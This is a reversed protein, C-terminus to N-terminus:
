DEFKGTGDCANCKVRAGNEAQCHYCTDGSIKGDGGCRPCTVLGSGNCNRCDRM